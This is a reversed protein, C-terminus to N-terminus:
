LVGITNLKYTEFDSRVLTTGNQASHLLIKPTKRSLFLYVGETVSYAGLNCMVLLDGQSLGNFKISRVLIDATTCLSGCLTYANEDNNPTQHNQPLHHIVPIKMAMTQGYYNVHNIGGDVIAYNTGSNQKIDMIKTIYFGCQSTFFRGMEITLEVTKALRNLAPLITRLPALTDTFDESTFYPVFLGPGYEVRKVTFNYENKLTSCLATIQSIETLHEATKIRQTGVFYHIGVFELCTYLDRNKIIDKLVSEDMGFQSGSTLRLLVPLVKGAKLAEDQLLCVHLFSEATYVGVNCAIATAIDERTKQVGSLIIKEMPINLKRCINLEGPSCVELKDVNECMTQVLFPNAKMAYCLNIEDGVIKKIQLARLSLEDTDFVYCPTGFKSAIDKFQAHSVM